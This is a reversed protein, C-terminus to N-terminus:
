NLVHRESAMTTVADSSAGGADDPAPSGGLLTTRFRTFPPSPRSYSCRRYTVRNPSLTDKNECEKTRLRTTESAVVAETAAVDNANTCSEDVADRAPSQRLGAAPSRLSAAQRRRPIAATPLMASAVPRLV